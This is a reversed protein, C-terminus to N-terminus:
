IVLYRNGGSMKLVGMLELEFLSSTIQAIPLQMKTTLENPTMGQESQRLANVLQEQLPTLEPFLTRQVPRKMEEATHWGMQEVFDAASLAMQAKGDAVLRNCGESMVDGVRGPVAFVRCGMEDAIRATILSGGHSKSEVVLTADAMTAVIRNRAVFNPKDATAGSQYETLLGGKALMDNATARHMRPYIQDLGHALVGLTPLGHALAARHACIDVGYALGSVILTDPCLEGLEGLFRECFSRGYDTCNRSGVVSLIHPANLDANGLYFMLVPADPLDRLRAPYAADSHLLASIHHRRIFEMEQLSRELSDSMKAISAATKESLQPCVDRVEHRNEYVERASGFAHLVVNQAAPNLPLARQLALTYLLEEERTEM